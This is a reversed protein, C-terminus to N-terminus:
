RLMGAVTRQWRIGAAAWPVLRGRAFHYGGALQDCLLGARLRMEGGSRPAGRADIRDLSAPTLLSEVARRRREGRPSLAPVDYGLFSLLGGAQCHLSAQDARSLRERWQTIRRADPREVLHVSVNAPDRYVQAAPSAPYDLMAPTYDMGVWGCLSRLTHEPQTVLHEYRVERYRDPGILRGAVMGALVLWTWYHGALAIRRPGWDRDMLSLAVDRGDRVLHVFLAGPFLRDLLTMYQVHVPTKEAWRRKGEQTMKEEFVAAFVRGHSRDPLRDLRARLSSPSLQWRGIFWDHELYELFRRYAAPPALSAPWAGRARWKAIRPIFQSEGPVSMDPHANLMLRLLTTGSRGCGVIFVPPTAGAARDDMEHEPHRDQPMPKAPCTGSLM